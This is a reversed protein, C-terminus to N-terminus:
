NSQDLSCVQTFSHSRKMASFGCELGTEAFMYMQRNHVRKMREVGLSIREFASVDLAMHMSYAPLGEDDGDEVDEKMSRQRSPELGFVTWESLLSFLSSCISTQSIYCLRLWIMGWDDSTGFLRRKNLLAQERGFARKECLWDDVCSVKIYMYNNRPRLVM